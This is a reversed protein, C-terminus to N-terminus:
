AENCSGFRQCFKWQETYYTATQMYKFDWVSICNEIHNPHFLLKCFIIKHVASPALTVSTPYERNQLHFNQWRIFNKRWLKIFDSSFTSIGKPNEVNNTLKATLGNELESLMTYFPRVQRSHLYTFSYHCLFQKPPINLHLSALVTISIALERFFLLAAESCSGFWRHSNFNWNASLYFMSLPFPLSFSLFHAAFLLNIGATYM